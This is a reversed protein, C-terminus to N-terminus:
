KCLPLLDCKESHLAAGHPLNRTPESACSLRDRPLQPAVGRRSAAAQLIARCCRLPMSLSRSAAWFLRLKREARRQSGIHLFSQCPDNDSRIPSRNRARSHAPFTAPMSRPLMPPPCVGPAWLLNSAAQWDVEWVILGHADAMFGDILSQENLTTTRQAALQCCAQASPPHQPCRSRTRASPTLGEDRGLDHDALPRRLCSIAGHRAVPFPVEDQAKATGCNASQHLTHRAESQQQVQRAHRVM